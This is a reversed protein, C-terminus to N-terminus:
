VTRAAGAEAPCSERDVCTATWAPRVPIFSENWMFPGHGSRKSVGSRRHVRTQERRNNKTRTTTRAMPSKRMFAVAWKVNLCGNNWGMPQWFRHAPLHPLYLSVQPWLSGPIWPTSSTPSVFVPEKLEDDNKIIMMAMLIEMTEAM